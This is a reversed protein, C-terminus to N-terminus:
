LRKEDTLELATIKWQEGVPEVRLRGEYRNQREHIHGWHGVSGTVTWVCDADFGPGGDIPEGAVTAVEVANVKARAGGQGQLELARQIDLYVDTLLDGGVSRELTDYIVEEGRYDFARYTNRLLGSVVETEEAEEMKVESRFPNPVSVRAFGWLTFIGIFAFVATLKTLLSVHWGQVRIARAVIVFLFLCWLSAVPIVIWGREPPPPVEAFSPVTPNKLHNKWVVTPQPPILRSPMGGAEDTAVVEVMEVRDSFLDWEMTVEEPLGEIPSVFIAGITASVAPLDAQGEVVTTGKLSREIFHVRDLEMEVREGDITVPCHAGLFEGVKELMAAQEGAPIVDRGGLGLDVWAELDVPRAVIEKRVENYDVYLFAQIPASFTRQLNPNRFKSYWPDEWDLFLIARGALYRFENVPLGEHYAVFGISATGTEGGSRGSPGSIQLTEPKGELLYELEVFVVAEADEGEGVPLPEGTIEDRMTRERGEMEVVRGELKEGEARGVLIDEVVFDQEFFRALREDVTGEQEIGLGKALEEPLLNRFAPLDAEGIELEVRVRDGEVFVEAITSAKMAQTRVLADGAVTSLGAGM